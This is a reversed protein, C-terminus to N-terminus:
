KGIPSWSGRLKLLSESTDNSCKGSGGRMATRLEEPELITIDSGYGILYEIMYDFEDEHYAGTLEDGSLQINEYRERYYREKGHQTTLCRFPITHYECVFRARYWRGTGADIGEFFWLGNRYFIWLFQVHIPSPSIQTSSIQILHQSICAEIIKRLFPIPYVPPVNYYRCVDLMDTVNKRRWSPLTALLRDYIDRYSNKFPTESLLSLAHLAFFIASVEDGSFTIPILTGRSTVQYGGSRGPESDVNLGLDALDTIDRLATRRSIHFQEMLDALHFYPHNTLYALERNLREAKKM